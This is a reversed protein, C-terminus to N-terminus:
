RSNMERFVWSIGNLEYLRSTRTILKFRPYYGKGSVDLHAKLVTQKPFQSNGLSWYDLITTGFLVEPDVFERTVFLRGYNPDEPDTNHEVTYNFLDTRPEDDIYTIHNFEVDKASLNNFELIIQRMRKKMTGVIDRKGTDLMQFNEIMRVTDEDLEILDEPQNEDISLWQVYTTGDRDYLGIFQAYGTAISQFVTLPRRTSEMAEITWSRFITDYILHFDVYLEQDQEKPIVFKLKYVYRLRNGDPYSKYDYLTMNIQDDPVKFLARFTYVDRLIDFVNEKFYDLLYTITNSVPAVQLEGKDNKTNPVVMYYYDRSKFCVMNRVGYMSVTDDERLQMNAQVPKYTFGDEMAFDVQFMTHETIVMLSNMYPFAKIVKENFLISSNPFPVYTPDNTDSIFVTMEAGPVGYFVLQNKWVVMDQAYHLKYKSTQTKLKNIDDSLHYSALLVVRIPNTLDEAKYVTAIVSFQKYPSIHDLAIEEGDKYTPSNEKKQVVTVGDQKYIDQVEWQVKYEEGEKYQYILKFKIREGVMAQLKIEDTVADYPLIGQPAFNAGSKNEFQYPDDLLMNYGYNVAQMPTVELPTMLKVEHTYTQTTPEYYIHLRGIGTETLVYTNGNLSGHIGTPSENTIPMNHIQKLAEHRNHKILRETADEKLESILFTNPAETLSPEEILVRSNKLSGYTSDAIPLSLVLAYRRLFVENTDENTIFTTGTHHIYTEGLGTGIATSPILPRWGGRPRIRAGYDKQIYNVLLKSVGEGLPNDTYQM